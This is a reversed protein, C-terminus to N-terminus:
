YYGYGYNAGYVGRAYNCKNLVVGMVNTSEAVQREVVDIQAISTKEAEVIILAADVQHLFGFSDDAGHLPPMDFLMLDPAYTEEIQELVGVTQRSQLLESSQTVAMNNLGFALNAGLRRAHDAFEVKGRVVDAMNHASTQGLVKGLAPRRLDFDLTITRFDDQRGLAFSLNAVTTTKGASANPSVVAVRRWGQERIQQMVRTRLLDYPAAESGGSVALVRKRALAREDVDLATLAEWAAEKGYSGRSAAGASIRTGAPASGDKRSARAKELAIQLREM